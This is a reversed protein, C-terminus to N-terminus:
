ELGVRNSEFLSLAKSPAFLKSESNKALLSESM